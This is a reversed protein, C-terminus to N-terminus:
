RGPIFRHRPSWPFGGRLDRPGASVVSCHLGIYLYVYIYIDMWVAVVNLTRLVPLKLSESGHKLPGLPEPVIM